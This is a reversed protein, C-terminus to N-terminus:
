FDAASSNESQGSCHLPSAVPDSHHQMYGSLGRLTWGDKFSFDRMKNMGDQPALGRFYILYLTAILSTRDRGIDCHFYIPRLRKDGLLCLIYNVRKQSPEVPSANITAPLVTMGYRKAHNREIRYIWPYFKLDIIYKINKSRLFAYDADTKPKSGKFVGDDIEAFRVISTGPAPHRRTASIGEENQAAAAAIM